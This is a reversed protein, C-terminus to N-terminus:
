PSTRVKRLSREDPEGPKRKKLGIVLYKEKIAYPDMGYGDDMVSVYRESLPVEKDDHIDLWANEADADWSNSILEAIVNTPKNQYLKLGLHEIINHSYELKLDSGQILTM